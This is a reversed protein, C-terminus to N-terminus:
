IPKFGQFIIERSILPAGSGLMKVRRLGCDVSGLMVSRSWLGVPVGWVKASIPNHYLFNDIKSM